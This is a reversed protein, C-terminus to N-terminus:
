DPLERHLVQVNQGHNEFWNALKRVTFVSRHKGGTCGVALTLYSKGEALYRPLLPVLLATLHHFFESFVNEAEIFVGVRDDLGTLERLNTEYHPNALFRVDFVLDAARPVGRRYSFSTLFITLSEEAGDGFQGQLIGKLGGPAMGTTDIVLDAEDRLSTLLRREHIIGDAVPRDQALPHRHRTVEYRQQLEENNCDLFLISARGNGVDMLAAHHALVTEVDFDRTRIDVGVALPRPLGGIDARQRGAALTELLSLPVNDIAEFNLDEFAKLASTKGAGSMGTVLVTTLRHKADTSM